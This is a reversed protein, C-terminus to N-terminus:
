EVIVKKGAIVRNNYVLRFYYIGRQWGSVDLQLSTQACIIEKEMVKKGTLDCSSTM